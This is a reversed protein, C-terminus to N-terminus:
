PVLVLITGILLVINGLITWFTFSEQKRIFIFSLVVVWIPITRSTVSVVIIPGYDLAIYRLLQAVCTTLGALIGLRLSRKDGTFLETRNAKSLFLQPLIVITAAVYATLTGTIPSGGSDLGYKIFIASSGWFIAAGVGYLVGMYFKRKDAAESTPRPATSRWPGLDNLAMIFPACFSLFIGVAGIPTITEQFILMALIITFISDLSTIVNSRTVGLLELSKYGWTRGFAFHVIGALAFYLFAEWPTQGIKWLDGTVAAILLFLPPGTFISVNAIYNSSVNLIGRRVIVRNIGFIFAFALGLIGGLM